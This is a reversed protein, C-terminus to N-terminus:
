QPIRFLFVNCVDVGRGAVFRGAALSSVRSLELFLSAMDTPPVRAIRCEANRCHTYKKLLKTRDVMLWPKTENPSQGRAIAM